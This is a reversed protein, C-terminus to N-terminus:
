HNLTNLFIETKDNASWYALNHSVETAIVIFFVFKLATYSVGQVVFGVVVFVAVVVFLLLVFGQPPPTLPTSSGCWKFHGTKLLFIM